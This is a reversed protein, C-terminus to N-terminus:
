WAIEAGDYNLFKGNLNFSDDLMYGLMGSVSTETTILANVGGMDTLVWGPHIAACQIKYQGLDVSMSKSVQNLATKSTRYPYRGGSTNDDISAIKSSINAVLTRSKNQSASLKLLPLLKQTLLM